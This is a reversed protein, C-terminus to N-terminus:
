HAYGKFHELYYVRYRIHYDDHVPIDIMNVYEARRFRALIKRVEQQDSKTVLLFKDNKAAAIDATLDYHDQTIGDANWKYITAPVSGSRLEYKLNAITKREDSLVPADPYLGEYYMVRKGFTEWGRLRRLPDTKSTLELKMSQTLFDFNYYLGMSILHLIISAVLLRQKGFQLCWAVVLVTAPVYIPAAWNAHARSLLSIVLIVGAMPVIFSLLLKYEDRKMLKGLWFTPIYLLLGFLIPGFVGFQALVFELLKWPRFDLGEINANHETHLYSVFANTRNWEYNPMYILIAVATMLIFKFSFLYVRNPRSLIFFLVASAFFLAMNYKSLLGMGVVLGMIIWWNVHWGELSSAFILLALSWFFLLPVDTSILTASVSVGPLTAYLIASWMAVRPDFLKRGIAYVLLSTLFHLIPSSLRVCFAGEGCLRTTAAILWAIMPPKSYYGWSLEKSWAWYQAEDAYLSFAEVYLYGIRLLTVVLCFLFARMYYHNTSPRVIIM